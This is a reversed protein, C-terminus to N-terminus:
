KVTIRKPSKRGSRPKSFLNTAERIADKSVRGRYSKIISEVGDGANIRDLVGAVLIRTFIFTPRGGCVGKAKVVYNGMATYQYPEGGFNVTVPRPM